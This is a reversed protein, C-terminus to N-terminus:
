MSKKRKKEIPTRVKHVRCLERLFNKLMDKQNEQSGELTITPIFSVKPRLAQTDRGAAALLDQGERGSACRRIVEWNM